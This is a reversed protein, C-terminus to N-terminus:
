WKWYKDKSPEKSEEVVEEIPEMDPSDKISLDRTFDSCHLASGSSSSFKKKCNRRWACIACNKRDVTM